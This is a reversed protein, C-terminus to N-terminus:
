KTRTCTRWSLGILFQIWQSKSQMPLDVIFCGFLISNFNPCAKIWSHNNSTCTQQNKQSCLDEWIYESTNLTSHNIPNSSTTRDRNYICTDKPVQEKIRMSACVLWVYTDLNQIISQLLLMASADRRNSHHTTLYAYLFPCWLSVHHVFIALTKLFKNAMRSAITLM